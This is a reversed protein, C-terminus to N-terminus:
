EPSDPLHHRLTLTEKLLYQYAEPTFAPQYQTLTTQWLHWYRLQRNPTAAAAAAAVAELKLFAQTKTLLKQAHLYSLIHRLGEWTQIAQVTIAGQKDFYLDLRLPETGIWGTQRYLTPNAAQDYVYLEVNFAGWAPRTIEFYYHGTAPQALYRQVQPPTTELHSSPFAQISETFAEFSLLQHQHDFLQVELEPSHVTLIYSLDTFSPTFTRVSLPEVQHQSLRTYAYAPDNIFFDFGTDTIGTGVLFHGPIEFIVPQRQTLEARILELSAKAQRRYELKPTGDRESLLRTLRTGALWNLAGQGVYGDPQSQLWENLTAPTLPQGDLLTTIRYYNMIMVLSSLACGWREITPQTSWARATDYEHNKWLPDLQKFLPVPLQLGSTSSPLLRVEVNDFSVQTPFVAGTSAKLTIKGPGAQFHYTDRESFVKQENIWLEILEGDFRIRLQYTQGNVMTFPYGSRWVVKHDKVHVVQFSEHNFHVEYWSNIHQWGFAVNRDVGQHPTLTLRYELNEWSSQWYTDKPVLESITFAPGIRATVVGNEVSWFHGDDRVAEWKSLGQSFDDSFIVSGESAQTQILSWGLLLVVIIVLEVNLWRGTSLWTLAWSKLQRTM